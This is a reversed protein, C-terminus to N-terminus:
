WANVPATTSNPALPHKGTDCGAGCDGEALNTVHRNANLSHNTCGSTASGCSGEVLNGSHNYARLVSTAGSDVYAAPTNTTRILRAVKGGHPIRIHCGTCALGTHDGKNGHPINRLTASHCNLCFLGDATGQSTTRNLYNWRTTGDAQTPWRTNPGRLIFAVASAHPGHAAGTGQDDNGHCDSCTMMDGPRWGNSMDAATLATNGYGTTGSVAGSAAVVPHYSQNRPNFDQALDTFQSGWAALSANAASHCKFCIEYERTATQYAYATPATWNTGSFTAPAGVVGGVRQQQVAHLVHAIFAQAAQEVSTKGASM